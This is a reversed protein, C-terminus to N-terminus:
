GALLRDKAQNIKIALYNSGGRDPHMRQMLKRHAETIERKSADAEVGLVKMAEERGMSADDTSFEGASSGQHEQERWGNPYTRDMFAELLSASPSDTRLCYRYLDLQEAKTLAALCKGEFPGTLIDADMNGSDHDLSMRLIKTEVNSAQGPSPGQGAKFRNHFAQAQSFLQLMGFARSIVPIAAVFAAFLPNLRGTVVALLLLAGGGILLARYSFRKRQAQPARKYWSVCYLIAVLVILLVIPHM